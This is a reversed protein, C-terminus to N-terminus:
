REAAIIAWMKKRWEITLRAFGAERLYGVQTDIADAPRPLADCWDDQLRYQLLKVRSGFRSLREGALALYPESQDLVAGVAQPLLELVREMLRGSGGGADVVLPTAARRQGLRQLIEDQIELYHPHIHEAAADYARAAEDTNWRYKTMPAESEWGTQESVQKSSGMSSWHLPIHNPSGLAKDRRKEFCEAHDAPHDQGFVSPSRGMEWSDDARNIM